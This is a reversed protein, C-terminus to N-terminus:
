ASDGHGGGHVDIVGVDNSDEDEDGHHDAYQNDNTTTIATVGPLSSLLLISDSSIEPPRQPIRANVDTRM